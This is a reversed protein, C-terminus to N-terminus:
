FILFPYLRVESFFIQFSRSLGILLVEGFRILMPLLGTIDDFNLLRDANSKGRFTNRVVTFVQYGVVGYTICNNFRNRKNWISSIMPLGFYKFKDKLFKRRKHLIVNILTVFAAMSTSILNINNLDYLECFSKASELYDNRNNMFAAYEDQQLLNVAIIASITLLLGTLIYFYFNYKGLLREIRFQHYITNKSFSDRFFDDSSIRENM